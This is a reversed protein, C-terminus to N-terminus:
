PAPARRVTYGKTMFGPEHSYAREYGEIARVIDTRDEESLWQGGWEDRSFDWELRGNDHVTLRVRLVGQGDYLEYTPM